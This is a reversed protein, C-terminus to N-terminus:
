RKATILTLRIKDNFIGSPSLQKLRDALLKEFDASKNGFKSKAFLPNAYIWGIIQEIDREIEQGIISERVDRFGAEALLTSYDKKNVDEMSKEIKRNTVHIYKKITKMAVQDREEAVKQAFLNDPGVFNGSIIVVGGGAKVKPLLARFLKEGNIDQLSQAVVVLSLSDDALEPIDGEFKQELAINKIKEKKMKKGALNLIDEDINWALVKDFYPALDFTALGGGYGVDLMMGPGDKKLKFEKVIAGVADPPYAPINRWYYHSPSQKLNEQNV